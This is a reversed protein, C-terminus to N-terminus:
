ISKSRRRRFAPNQSRRSPTFWGCMAGIQLAYVIRFADGRYKVALEPVGLGLGTLPKAIAPHGGEGIIALTRAVDIQAGTPFDQFDKPAAKIWSIVRPM